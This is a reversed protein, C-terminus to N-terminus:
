ASSTRQAAAGGGVGPGPQDPRPRHDARRPVAGRPQAGPRRRPRPPAEHRRLLHRHPTSPTASTSSSAAARRAAARDRAAAPRLAPGAPAAAGRGTQKRDLAADQLAVGIRLRVQDPSPPSTTAPSSRGRRRTPALLTCLMRVTTSKGAGNPGLFGYIEGRAIELDLGDVAALGDFRRVLGEAIIAPSGAPAPPSRRLVGDVPLLANTM